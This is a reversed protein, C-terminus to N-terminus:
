IELERELATIFEKVIPRWTEVKSGIFAKNNVVTEWMKQLSPSLQGIGQSIEDLLGKYPHVAKCTDVKFLDKALKLILTEAQMHSGSALQANAVAAHCADSDRQGSALVAKLSSSPELPQAHRRKPTRVDSCPDADDDFEGPSHIAENPQEIEKIKDPPTPLPTGAAWRRRIEEMLSKKTVFPRSNRLGTAKGVLLHYIDRLEQAGKSDLDDAPAAHQEWACPAADTVDAEVPTSPELPQSSRKRKAAAALPRLRPKRQKEEVKKPSVWKKPGM